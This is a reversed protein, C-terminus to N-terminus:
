LRPEEKLILSGVNATGPFFIYPVIKTVTVGNTVYTTKTNTATYTSGITVKVTDGVTKTKDTITLTTEQTKTTTKTVTSTSPGNGGYIMGECLSSVQGYANGLISNWVSYPNTSTQAKPTTNAKREQVPTTSSTRGRAGNNGAVALNQASSTTLGNVQGLLVLVPVVLRLM